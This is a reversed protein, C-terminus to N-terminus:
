CSWINEPQLNRAQKFKHLISKPLGSSTQNFMFTLGSKQRSLLGTKNRSVLYHLTLANECMSQSYFHNFIM